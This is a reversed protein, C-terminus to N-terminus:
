FGYAPIIAPMPAVASVEQEVTGIAGETVLGPQGMQYMADIVALVPAGRNQELLRCFHQDHAYPVVLPSPTRADAKLFATV